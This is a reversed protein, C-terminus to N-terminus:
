SNGHEIMKPDVLEKNQTTSNYWRIGEALLKCAESPSPGGSIIQFSIAACLHGHQFIEDGPGFKLDRFKYWVPMLWDYSTNYKALECFLRLSKGPVSFTDTRFLGNATYWLRAPFGYSNYSTEQEVVGMFEAFLTNMKIVENDTITTKDETM